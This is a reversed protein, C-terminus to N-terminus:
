RSGSGSGGVGKAVGPAQIWSGTGDCATWLWDMDPLRPEVRNRSQVRRTAEDSWGSRYERLLGIWRSIEDALVSRQILRVRDLRDVASQDASAWPTVLLGRAPRSRRSEVARVAGEAQEVDDNVIRRAIPAMKVEFALIRHPQLLEWHADHEGSIPKPASAALGLVESGVRAIARAVVDHDESELEAFLAGSWQDFRPGATGLRTMIEDWAGFLDDHRAVPAVPSKGSRRTEALRLRTFFTSNAGATASARLAVLADRQAVENGYNGALQLALARQALWFARHESTNSLRLAVRDFLSAARGYDERWLALSGEVEDSATEPAASVTARAPPTSAPFAEGSLFREAEALGTQVGRDSREVAAYVDARVDDPLSDVTRRESFRTLFEPDTLLYIARDQESRNCRGLAQAVRQGFRAEAFAADRLFASAWEELDSTAVPVEPVVEIRCTDDPFDMGDYRGAAILQGAPESAFPEDAGNDAELRRVVGPLGSLNLAFELTTATERRACLWLAKPRKTLLPYLLGVLETADLQDAADRVVVLRDGQRPQVSATLMTLPPTGLRRCLDDVSGITASLYLRRAPESFHSITQSPPIYPTFTVGRRSVLWCCTELRNRIQQWAWWSDTGSRLRADLLDRVEPALDASDAFVLMELRRLTDVDNLLDTAVSYYPCKNVIRELVETYLSDGGLVAVTFFDRLPQELLHVDDLILLGAPEVGPSANFYNWYNMVGIAAGFNYTRVDRPSWADKSGQFRVVPFGLDRAQRDVQQALQKNGTLYAVPNGTALRFDEGVLLGLLTKGAGTPLEIAVDGDLPAFGALIERQWPWLDPIAASRHQTFLQDFRNGADIGM